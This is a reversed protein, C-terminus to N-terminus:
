QEEEEIEQKTADEYLNLYEPYAKPCITKIYQLYNTYDEAAIKSGSYVGDLIHDAYDRDLQYLNSEHRFMARYLGAAFHENAAEQMEMLQGISEVLVDLANEESNM